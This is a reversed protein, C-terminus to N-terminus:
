GNKSCKHVSVAPEDKALAPTTRQRAYIFLLPTYVETASSCCCVLTNRGREESAVLETQKVRKGAIIKNPKSVTTIGTEDINLIRLQSFQYKELLNELNTFFM